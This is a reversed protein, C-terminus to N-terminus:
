SYIHLSISRASPLLPVGWWCMLLCLFAALLILCAWRRKEPLWRRAHLYGLYALWTIAAWTEKPDWTWYHGWAEKAWWAGLIMGVTFFCIGYGVLSDALLWAKRNEKVLLYVGLLSASVLLAFSLMYAVVHPAFWHSQLAPMLQRSQLGNRFALTGALMLALLLCPIVIGAPQPRIRFLLCLAGALLLFLGAYVCPLWPDRVLLFTSTHNGLDYGYQYIDWGNTHLPHNVEVSAHSLAGVSLESAFRAPSGDPYFDATFRHLTLTMGLDVPTGSKDVAIHGAGGEPLTMQLMQLRPSGAACLLILIIGGHFLSGKKM